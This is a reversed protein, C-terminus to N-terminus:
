RESASAARGTALIAILNDLRQELTLHRPNTPDFPVAM